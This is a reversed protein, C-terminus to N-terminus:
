YKGLKEEFLDVSSSLISMALYNPAITKEGLRYSRGPRTTAHAALCVLLVM